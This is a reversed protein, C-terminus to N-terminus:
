GKRLSGAARLRGAAFAAFVGVLTLALGYWTLAYELHRNPIALRTVGGRPLGGAPAPEADADVTVPVATGGQGFASAQLASVDPWHWVNRAPDNDPTFWGGAAPRRVLGRVEVDGAVQGARRTAPDKQADPVFGRNVWLFRGPAIELPAYVHWGLGSAAPAYLYREKDHRFRGTATVRIYEVDGGSRLQEEARALPVPAASVRAAIRAILDEKWRKRELQWTGLGVLVALGAVAFATPWILGAGKLRALM